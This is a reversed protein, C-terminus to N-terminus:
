DGILGAKRAFGQAVPYDTGAESLLFSIAGYRAHTGPVRSRGCPRRDHFGVATRLPHRRAASLARARGALYLAGRGPERLDLQAEAVFAELAEIADFGSALEAYVIGNIVLPGRRSWADLQTVSWDAWRADAAAVDILACSDVVIM